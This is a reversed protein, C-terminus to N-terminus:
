PKSVDISISAPDEPFSQKWFPRLVIVARNVEPYNTLAVEADQRSKGAVAAAIRAKDVVYVLQASGSLSFSFTTAAADPFGATPVLKLGDVSAVTLPEGQYNTGSSALAIAKALGTNQFIVATATGQEKVDVMGDTQSPTPDLDQYTTNLAGPLLVYDDPIQERISKELDPALATTLATRAQVAGAADVVPVTGSAGGTMASTSRAYVESAQPTGALGPVTFSSPGVNYESGNKDAYVTAVVTGPNSVSGGPVKVAKHIRFILGSATAFRTQTILPQAKSQTNYITIEGSAASNVTKTGNSKVVQSAIKQATIVRFPVQTAEQGATFQGQVTAAITSPVIEIKASSFYMLAGASGVIVILVIFMTLYPLRAKQRPARPLKTDAQAPKEAEKRRSPPIIDDFKHM